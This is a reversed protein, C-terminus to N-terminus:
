KMPIKWCKRWVGMNPWLKQATKPGVGPFGPINDVADGMMGLYDIVQEVREIGFKEQVEPIGWIEPPNGSRGPRYMKINDSVLQAYDKDPTMMFVEFGEKEAMKALTGIVDDAEYGDIGIFPINFADLIKSIYPVSIKIAEPTEDRNAKYEKFAEHRVTPASTDYVVAIHSPKQKELVDLMTTVFGFIASTDLGNSSVRPNNIFAFYARYILAFADLLFLKKPNESM